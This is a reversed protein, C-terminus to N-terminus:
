KSKASKEKNNLYNNLLGLLQNKNLFSDVQFQIENKTNLIILSPYSVKGNITAIAEALEHIGTNVGSPKFQFLRNNFQIDKKQEGNFMIFYFSDNITSIVEKDSFINKKMAFCFKCWDTYLYVLVPKGEQFQLQSVEEFTYAKPLSVKQQSFAGSFVTIFVILLVWNKM